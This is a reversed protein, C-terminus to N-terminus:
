SEIKSVALDISGIETRQRTTRVGRMHHAVCREVLDALEFGNLFVRPAEGRVVQEQVAEERERLREIQPSALAHYGGAKESRCFLHKIEPLSYESGRCQRVVFLM